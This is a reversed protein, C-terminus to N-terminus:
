GRYTPLQYYARIENPKWRYGEVQIILMGQDVGTILIDCSRKELEENLIVQLM